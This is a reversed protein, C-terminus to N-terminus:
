TTGKYGPQIDMNVAKTFACPKVWWRKWGLGGPPEKDRHILVPGAWSRPAIAVWFAGYHKFAWRWSSVRHEGIKALQEWSAATGAACPHSVQRWDKVHEPMVRTQGWLVGWAMILIAFRM